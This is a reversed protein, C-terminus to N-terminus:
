SPEAQYPLLARKSEPDMIGLSISMPINARGDTICVIVVQGVDKKIKKANLGVRMSTMLGHSLPSGGGCPMSELRSKTLTISKTPPVLVEVATERFSILCIKACIKDSTVEGVSRNSAM